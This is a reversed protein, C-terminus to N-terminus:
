KASDYLNLTRLFAEARQAATAHTRVWDFALQDNRLDVKYCLWAMYKPLQDLTLAKEAEHMANLDSLYDPLRPTMYEGAYRTAEDKTRHWPSAFSGSPPIWKKGGTAQGSGWDVIGSGHHCTPEGDHFKWGCATAIAVRQAEPSM